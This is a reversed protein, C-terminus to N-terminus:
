LWQQLASKRYSLHQIPVNNDGLHPIVRHQNLSNTELCDQALYFLAKSPM